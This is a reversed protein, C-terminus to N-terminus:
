FREEEPDRKVDGGLRPEGDPLPRPAPDTGAAEDAESASPHREMRYAPDHPALGHSGGYGSERTALETPGGEGAVDDGSGAGILQGGERHFTATVDAQHEAGSAERREAPVFADRSSEPTLEGTAGTMGGEGTEGGPGTPSRTARRIPDDDM